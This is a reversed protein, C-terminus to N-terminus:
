VSKWGHSIRVWASVLASDSASTTTPIADSEIFEATLPILMGYLFVVFAPPINWLIERTVHPDM